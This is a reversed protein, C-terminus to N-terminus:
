DRITRRTQRITRPTIPTKQSIKRSRSKVNPILQNTFTFLHKKSEKQNIYQKEATKYVKDFIDSSYEFQPNDICHKILLYAVTSLIYSRESNSLSGGYTKRTRSGGSSSQLLRYLFDCSIQATSLFAEVYVNEHSDNLIKIISDIHENIKKKTNIIFKDLDPQSMILFEYKCPDNYYLNYTAISVRLGECFEYISADNRTYQDGTGMPFIIFSAQRKVQNCIIHAPAVGRKLLLKQSQSTRRDAIIGRTSENSEALTKMINGLIPPICHEDEGCGLKKYIWASNKKGVKKIIKYIYIPKNCLWCTGCEFKYLTYASYKRRQSLRDRDERLSYCTVGDIQINDMVWLRENKETIETWDDLEMSDCPTPIYNEHFLKVISSISKSTLLDRVKADADAERPCLNEIVIRKFDDTPITTRGSKSSSESVFSYIPQITDIIITFYKFRSEKSIRLLGDSIKKDDSGQDASSRSSSARRSTSARSISSVKKAVIEEIDTEGDSSEELQKKLKAEYKEKIRSSRKVSSLININIDTLVNDNRSVIKTLQEEGELTEKGEVTSKRPDQLQSELIPSIGNEDTIHKTIDEKINFVSIDPNSTVNNIITSFATIITNDAKIFSNIDPM